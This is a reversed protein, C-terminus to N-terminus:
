GAEALFALLAANVETPNEQQVWHGAGDVMTGGRFDSFTGAMADAAGPMMANVPDLSGTLFGIPFTYVTAEIGNSRHWNADMNRYFSVPGFFGSKEFAAAYVDVDHETVWAPLVDPATGLIDLFKTGEAPADIALANANAMGEGGAAYLMTRLFHRPDAEFEAEAPGVPQFYLMYFFKGEFIVKFIDTPPAPAASYPVSMNYISSVREPHLRGMEWVVMAGWDHGVFDAKEYGFHDLLGCLDGTLKDSGYDSVEKPLSSDGYGRQDVAIARYGADGLASLQHRWSYWLEPFGHVLVVPKGDEPGATAVHLEIGNSPIQTHTIDSM